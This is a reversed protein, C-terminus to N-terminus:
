LPCCHERPFQYGTMDFLLAAEGERQDPFGIVLQSEKRANKDRLIRPDITRPWLTNDFVRFDGLSGAYVDHDHHMNIRLVFRDAKATFLPYTHNQPHICVLKLQEISVKVRVLSTPDDECTIRKIAQDSGM